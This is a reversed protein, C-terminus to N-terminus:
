ALRNKSIASGKIITAKFSRISGNTVNSSVTILSLMWKHPDKLCVSMQSTEFIKNEIGTKNSRLREIAYLREAQSLRSMM